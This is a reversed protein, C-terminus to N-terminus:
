DLAFTIYVDYSDCGDCSRLECVGYRLSNKALRVSARLEKEPHQILERQRVLIMGM